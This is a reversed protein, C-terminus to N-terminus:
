TAIIPFCGPSESTKELIPQIVEPHILADIEGDVLMKEISNGAPHAPNEFGGAADLRSRRRRTQAM